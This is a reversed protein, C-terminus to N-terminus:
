LQDKTSRLQAHSTPQDLYNNANRKLGLLVILQIVQLRIATMSRQEIQGPWGSSFKKFINSSLFPFSIDLFWPSIEVISILWEGTCIFPRVNEFITLCELHWISTLSNFSLTWSTHYVTAAQSSYIMPSWLLLKRRTTSFTCITM